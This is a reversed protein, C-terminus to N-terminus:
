SKSVSDTVKKQPTPCPNTCLEGRLPCLKTVLFIVIPKPLIKRPSVSLNFIPLISASLSQTM